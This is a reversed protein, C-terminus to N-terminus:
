ESMFIQTWYDVGAASKYHGIGISTYNGNLINARHGASNMWDRMVQDATKQGYAINEGAARYSVRAAALATTFSSGDPRTHSFSRELEESRVQAARFAGTHLALAPLGARSREENVLRLVADVAEDQTGDSPADPTPTPVMQDPFVPLCDPSIAGGPLQSLLRNFDEKNNGTIMIMKGGGASLDYTRVAAHATGNMTGAMTFVAAATIAYATARKM